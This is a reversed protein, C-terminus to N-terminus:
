VLHKNKFKTCRKIYNDYSILGFEEIINNITTNEMNNELLFLHEEHFTKITIKEGYKKQIEAIINMQLDTHFLERDLNIECFAIRNWRSTSVIDKGNIEIVRAFYPMVSSILPTRYNIAINRISFGGEYASIWCFLEANNKHYKEWIDSWNIDFCIGIGVKACDLDFTSHTNAPSIGSTIEGETPFNKSYTGILDGHRSIILAKNFYKTDEKIILGAILNYNGKKAYSKLMQVTEGNIDEAINPIKDSAMGCSKFTEPLLVIDPHIPIASELISQAQKINESINPERLNFPPSIAEFTGFSSTMIKVKRSM